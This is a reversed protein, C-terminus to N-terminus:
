PFCSDETLIAHLQTPGHVGRVTIQEIDATRSSGTIFVVSRGSISRGPERPIPVAALVEELTEVVQARRYVAIHVPPALSALQSGETLSSLVLSGSEALAFEVGTVGVASSFCEGRFREIEEATVSGDQPWAIVPRGLSKIREPLNLEGLIRNRSFIAPGPGCSSLIEDLVQDLERSSSAHHAIGSVKQFEAEFKRVLEEAPVPPLVRGLEPLTERGRPQAPLGLESTPRLAGRVRKLMEEKTAMSHLSENGAGSKTHFPM